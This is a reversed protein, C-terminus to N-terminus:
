IRWKIPSGTYIRLKGGIVMNGASNGNTGFIVVGNAGSFFFIISTDHIMLGVILQLCVFRRYILIKRPLNVSLMSLKKSLCFRRMLQPPFREHVPRAENPDPHLRDELLQRHEIYTDLIDKFRKLVLKTFDHVKYYFVGQLVTCLPPTM